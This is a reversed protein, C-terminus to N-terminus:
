AYNLVQFYIDELKLAYDKWQFKALIKNRAAEGIKEVLNPKELLFKIGDALANSDGPEVLYGSILHDIYETNQGVRGTVVAKGMAMADAVRASCKARRILMDRCPYVVLYSQDMISLFDPYDLRDYIKINNYSAIQSSAKIFHVRHEGHIVMNWQLNIRQSSLIKIADLLIDADDWNATMYGAYFVSKPKWNSIKKYSIEPQLRPCNPIYRVYSPNIGLGWVRSELTRSAVTIAEAHKLIYNEQFDIFKKWLFPIKIVENWGGKGDWDDIDVIIPIRTFIRIIMAAIGPYRVPAFIHVFDPKLQSVRRAALVALNFKQIHTSKKIILNEIKVGEKEFALGSYKLNDHPMVIVTANHGMKVLEKALPIIRANVTGKPEVAFPALMAIKM